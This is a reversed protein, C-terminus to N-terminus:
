EHVSFYLDWFVAAVPRADLSDGQTADRETFRQILDCKKSDIKQKYSPNADYDGSTLVYWRGFRSRKSIRACVVRGEPTELIIESSGKDFRLGDVKLLHGADYTENALYGPNTKIRIGAVGTAPDFEYKWDLFDPGFFRDGDFNFYERKIPQSYVLQYGLVPESPSAKVTPALMCLGLFLLGFRATTTM